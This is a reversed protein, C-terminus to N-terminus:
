VIGMGDIVIWFGWAYEPLYYKLVVTRWVICGFVNLKSCSSAETTESGLCSKMQGGWIWLQGGLM